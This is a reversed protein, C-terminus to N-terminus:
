DPEFGAIESILETAVDRAAPKAGAWAAGAAEDSV